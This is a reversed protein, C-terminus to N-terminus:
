NCFPRSMIIVDKTFSTATKGTSTSPYHNLSIGLTALQKRILRQNQKKQSTPLQFWGLLESFIIKKDFFPSMKIPLHKTKGNTLDIALELTQTEGTNLVFAERRQFHKAQKEGFLSEDTKGLINKQSTLGMLAQFAQNCGLYNGNCDKWFLSVPVSNIIHPLCQTQIAENMTGVKSNLTDETKL